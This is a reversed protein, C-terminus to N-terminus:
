IMMANQLIYDKIEGHRFFYVRYTRNIHGSEIVDFGRYEGVIQFKECVAKIQNELM